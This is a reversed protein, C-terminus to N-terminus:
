FMAAKELAPHGKETLWNLIAEEDTGVDEDAIYDTMNDIGYLEKTIANLKEAVMEKLSKNMWVIRVQGGDHSIFKKSGIYMRSHGVFGPTQNGGGVTNAMTTFKM